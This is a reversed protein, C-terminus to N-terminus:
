HWRSKAADGRKASVEAAHKREKEFVEFVLRGDTRGTFFPGVYQWCAKIERPTSHTLAAIAAMDNPLGDGLWEQVLADFLVGKAAKPMLAFREDEAFDILPMRVWPLKKGKM